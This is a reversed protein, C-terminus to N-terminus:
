ENRVKAGCNPCYNGDYGYTGDEFWECDDCPWFDGHGHCCAQPEKGPWYWNCTGCSKGSM